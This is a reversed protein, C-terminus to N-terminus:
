LTIFMCNADAIVSSSTTSQWVKLRVVYRTKPKTIRFTAAISGDSNRIQDNVVTIGPDSADEGSCSWEHPHNDFFGIVLKGSADRFEAKVLANENVKAIGPGTLKLGIYVGPPNTDLSGIGGFCGGALIVLPLFLAAVKM